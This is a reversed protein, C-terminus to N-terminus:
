RIIAARGAATGGHIAAAPIDVKNVNTANADGSAFIWSRNWFADWWQYHNTRATGIDTADARVVLNSMQNQWDTITSTQATYPYISLVFNTGSTSQLTYNNLTSFNAGKITAGFTRNLYTDPYNTLFHGLNEGTLITQYFSSANRHYWVLQNTLSLVTDASESPLTTGGVVGRFSAANPDSSSPLTYTSSRWVENSCSMIFPQDGGAEIQVVPQNADIWLRLYVQSGPQGATIDIEGHYLDLTESFPEGVAFPNPAFHLRTRGIKLLRTAESWSDSKGIYMMLDGGNEVWVNATIDGNGLPMSGPSGNTGPSTWTVNYNTLQSLVDAPLSAAVGNLLLVEFLLVSVLGAFNLRSDKM